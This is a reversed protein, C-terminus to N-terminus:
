LPNRSVSLLSDAQELMPEFPAGGMAQLKLLALMFQYKSQALDRVAEAQRQLANFLDTQSRTGAAIGKRTSIVMQDASRLSQEFAKIRQLGETTNQYEKRVQLGLARRTQEQFEEERQLVALAQRVASATQGGAYLSWNFQIGISSNRYSSNPNYYNEGQSRTAQAVLDITPLLGSNQKQVELRAAEVKAQSLVMDPHQALTQAMAEPDTAQAAQPQVLLPADVSAAVETPAAVPRQPETGAAALAASAPASPVKAKVPKSTVSPKAANPEAEFGFFSMQDTKNM